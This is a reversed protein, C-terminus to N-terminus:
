INFELPTYEKSRGELPYGRPNCLVRCQGIMYDYPDHTHGHLWVKIQPHELILEDLDSSFFGNDASMKFKHHISQLSPTFHTMVIIDKDKNDDLCKYLTKITNNFAALTDKTQLRRSGVQINNYDSWAHARVETLPNNRDLDSWLTAGFLITNDSLKITDNELLEVEPLVEKYYKATLDYDCGYHEHNGLVSYVKNYKRLQVKLRERLISCEEIIMQFRLDFEYIEDDYKLQKRVGKYKWHPNIRGVECLDGALLLIDGGPLNLTKAKDFDIHLDSVLNLKMIIRLRRKIGLVNIKKKVVLSVNRGSIGVRLQIDLIIVGPM